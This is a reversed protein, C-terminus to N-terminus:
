LVQVFLAQFLIDVSQIDIYSSTHEQAYGHVSFTFRINFHIRYHLQDPGFKSDCLCDCIGDCISHVDQPISLFLPLPLLPLYWILIRIWIPILLPKCHLIRIPVGCLGIVEVAGLGGRIPFLLNLVLILNAWPLPLPSPYKCISPPSSPPLSPYKCLSPPLDIIYIYM